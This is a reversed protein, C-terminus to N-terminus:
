CVSLCEPNESPKGYTRVSFFTTFRRRGENREGGAGAEERGRQGM